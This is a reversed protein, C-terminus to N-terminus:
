CVKKHTGRFHRLSLTPTLEPAAHSNSKQKKRRAGLYLCLLQLGSILSLFLHIPFAKLSEWQHRHFLRLLDKRQRRLMARHVMRSETLTQESSAHPFMRQYERM